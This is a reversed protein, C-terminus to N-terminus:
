ISVAEVIIGVNMFVKSQRIEPIMWNDEWGDFAM